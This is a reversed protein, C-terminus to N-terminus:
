KCYLRRWLGRGLLLLFHMKEWIREGNKKNENLRAESPYLRGDGSSRALRWVQKHGQQEKYAIFLFCWDVM